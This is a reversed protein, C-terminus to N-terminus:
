NQQCAIDGMDPADEIFEAVLGQEKFYQMMQICAFKETSYHTAGIVNIGNEKALRDFEVAPPYDGIARSIGTVFVKINKELLEKMIDLDNGGGAVVAIKEDKIDEAGYKLTSVEHGVAGELRKSLESLTGDKTKGIVGVLVGFYKAFDEDHSIGIEKALNVSTSYKGNKDLPVHLTYLSIGREELKPLLEKDINLFPFGEAKTDWIMPHHTFLLVNKEGKDLITKLVFDSPFVATYVKEIEDTNDLVLGMQREKFNDTLHEGLDLQVWDDECKGLEFDCDLKQYLENANM